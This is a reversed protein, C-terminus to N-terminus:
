VIRRIAVTNEQWYGSFPTIEVDEGTQPAQIVLGSGIYMGVHGPNAATGDSGPTFLLDGPKLQSHSYVPNGTYVQQFTTRPLSIGAAQYAMMVLGSCDYGAPGVGGWIYPKGLQAAAYAVATVVAQPTGSPLTLGAPLYTIGSQPVGTGNDTLCNDASGSFTAALSEALSEWKAYAGPTASRQVAQAAVTLPLSQWGPIGALAQYFRTAAYVPQMIQARTGWGQSPRQQFLGLSDSTGDPLNVLGSEQMATAEAIVAAQQPLGMTVSVDYIIRANGLQGPGLTIGDVPQGAQVPSTGCATVPADAPTTAGSAGATFAVGLTLVFPVALAMAGLRALSGMTVGETGRSIPPAM